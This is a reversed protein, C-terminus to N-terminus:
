KQEESFKIRGEIDKIDIYVGTILTELTEGITADESVKWQQCQEVSTDVHGDNPVEINIIRNDPHTITIKITEM